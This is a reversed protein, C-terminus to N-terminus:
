DTYRRSVSDEMKKLSNILVDAYMPLSSLADARPLVKYGRAKLISAWSEKSDGFVAEKAENDLYFALSGLIVPAPPPLTKDLDSLVQKSSRRPNPLGIHVKPNFMSRLVESFSRYVHSNTEGTRDTVLIVAAEAEKAERFLPKFVGAMQFFSEKQGDGLGLAPSGLGIYPFPVNVRDFAKINRLAEVVSRTDQFDQGDILELPQVLVFRPGSEQISALISLTSKVSFFREEVWPFYKRFSSDHARGAWARRAEASGFAVFIDYCPFYDTVRREIQTLGKLFNPDVSGPTVLVIAPNMPEPEESLLPRASLLIAVFLLLSLALMM